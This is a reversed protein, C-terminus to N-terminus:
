AGPSGAYTWGEYTLRYRHPVDAAEVYGCEILEAIAIEYRKGQLGEWGTLKQEPLEKSHARGFIGILRRADSSLAIM